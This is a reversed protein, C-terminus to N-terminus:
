QDEDLGPRVFQAHLWARVAAPQVQRPFDSPVGCDVSPRFRQKGVVLGLFRDRVTVDLEVTTAKTACATAPVARSTALYRAHSWPGAVGQYYAGGGLLDVVGTSTPEPEDAAAWPGTLAPAFATVDPSSDLHLASTRGGWTVQHRVPAHLPGAGALERPVTAAPVLLTVDLAGLAHQEGLAIEADPSSAELRLVVQGNAGVAPRHSVGDDLTIAVTRAGAPAPAVVLRLTPAAIAPLGVSSAGAEDSTTRTTARAAASRDNGCGCGLATVLSLSTLVLPQWRQHLDM